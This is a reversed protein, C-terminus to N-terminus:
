SYVRALEEWLNRREGDENPGYIFIIIFFIFLYIELLEENLKAVV